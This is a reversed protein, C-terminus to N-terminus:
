GERRGVLYDLIKAVSEALSEQDTHVTIDPAAPAEYPSGIGTLDPIEGRRARRYLDKPDRQECVELPCDVYVEIFTPALLERLCAREAQGPSIFAALVILGADVLLRTVEGTRRLNERRDEPSFGLDRNLGHRLNDGDLLYTARGLAQLREEVAGALTSKGAGSLGTFWLAVGKQGLTRERERRGIPHPQWYVEAM